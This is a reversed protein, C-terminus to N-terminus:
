APFAMVDNIEQANALLMVLRDVGMAIGGCPPLGTGMAALFEEDVPYPKRGTKKRDEAFQDFRKRQEDPETLETYANAVELGGIYLEWREAAPLASKRVRAFASCAPPYDKLVVPHDKPLNPEVKTVLDLDFRDTDFAQLPNWGAYELFADAVSRCDWLPLLDVKIDGYQFSTKGLVSRTVFALMSKTDALIDMYDANTRYWELMTFEPQHLRGKEDQRFCPGMQFIREHGAALLRKMHLEPSTRLYWAGSEQADIYSELAPVPIRVPTDIETFRQDHFYQRICRLVRSRLELNRRSSAM